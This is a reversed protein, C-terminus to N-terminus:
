LLYTLKLLLILDGKALEGGQIRDVAEKPSLWFYESFDNTNYNPSEELSIEYVRQYAHVGHQWPNFYGIERYMDPTLHLNLEEATERLFSEEYSEGSDVHGGVSMDLANPFIKKTPLRRPIWIKGDSRRIFANIARICLGDPTLGEELYRPDAYIEDREATRIIEDQENVLDLLESGM